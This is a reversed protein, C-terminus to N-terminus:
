LKNHIDMRQHLVRIIQLTEVDKLRYFIIHSKVQLGFYEVRVKDYNRGINPNKAISNIGDILLSYYIDAQTLSWKEFTYEWINILDSEVEKSIEINM